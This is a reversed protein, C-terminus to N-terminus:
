EKDWRYHMDILEQIDLNPSYNISLESLDMNLPPLMGLDDILGLIMASIVEAKELKDGDTIYEPCQDMLHHVIRELVESRKM